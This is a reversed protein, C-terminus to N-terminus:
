PSLLNGRPPPDVVPLAASRGIPDASRWTEATRRSDSFAKPYSAAAFQRALSLSVVRTIAVEERAAPPLPVPLSPQLRAHSVTGARGATVSSDHQWYYHLGPPGLAIWFCALYFVIRTLM